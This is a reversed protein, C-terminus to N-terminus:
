FRVFCPRRKMILCDVPRGNDYCDAIEGVKSEVDSTLSIPPTQPKIAFHKEEAIPSPTTPSAPPTSIQAPKQDQVTCGSIFLVAVILLAIFVLKMNSNLWTKYLSTEIGM